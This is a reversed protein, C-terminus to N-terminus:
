GKEGEIAPKEADSRNIGITIHIVGSGLVAAPEQGYIRRCVRELDWQAGKLRQTCRAVSVMDPATDLEIEAEEKRAFARAVQIEKWAEEQEAIIRKYLTVNSVGYDKCVQRIEEGNEYRTLAQQVLASDIISTGPAPM